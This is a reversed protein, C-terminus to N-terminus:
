LNKGKALFFDCKADSTLIVKKLKCQKNDNHQCKTDKCQSLMTEMIQKFKM